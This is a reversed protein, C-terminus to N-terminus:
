GAPFIGKALLLNLIRNVSEDVSIKDTPLSLAPSAPPEYPDSIGTFNSIKGRRAKAYLGKTDRRECEELPTSVYVEIFNRCLNRVANRSKRYPSVFSAVVFVGRKELMGALFGVRKIHEDRDKKTFGTNPFISRMTDGDLHEVDAGLRKLRTVVKRAITSKGSGSLGTFWLVAPRVRSPAHPGAQASVSRRPACESELKSSNRVRPPRNDEVASLRQSTGKM